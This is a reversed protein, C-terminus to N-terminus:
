VTITGTLLTVATGAIRVPTPDDGDADVRVEIVKEAHTFMTAITSHGALPIEMRLPFFRGRFGPAKSPTVFATESLSMASATAQM